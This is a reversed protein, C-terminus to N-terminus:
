ALPLRLREVARRFPEPRACLLLAWYGDGQPYDLRYVRHPRGIEELFKDAAAIVAELDARTGSPRVAFARLRGEHMFEVGMDSVDTDYLPIGHMQKAMENWGSGPESALQGLDPTVLRLRMEGSPAVHQLEVPPRVTSMVAAFIGHHDHEYGADRTSVFVLRKGGKAFLDMVVDVPERGAVSAALEENAVPDLADADVLLALAEQWTVGSRRWHLMMADWSPLEELPLDDAVDFKALHGAIAQATWPENPKEERARRLCHRLAQAIETDHRESRPLRLLMEALHKLPDNVFPEPSRSVQDLSRMLGALVDESPVAPCLGREFIQNVMWALEPNAAAVALETATVLGARALAELLDFEAVERDSAAALAAVISARQGPTEGSLAHFCLLAHARAVAVLRDDRLARLMLDAAGQPKATHILEFLRTTYLWGWPVRFLRERANDAALSEEIVRLLLRECRRGTGEGNTPFWHALALCLEHVANGRIFPCDWPHAQSIRPECLHYAIADLTEDDTRRQAFATCVTVAYNADHSRRLHAVAPAVVDFRVDLCHALAAVSEQTAPRQWVKGLAALLAEWTLEDDGGARLSTLFRGWGPTRRVSDVPHLYRLETLALRRAAGDAGELATLFIRPGLPHGVHLMVLGIYARTHASDNRDLLQELAPWLDTAPGEYQKVADAFWHPDVQGIADLIERKALTKMPWM